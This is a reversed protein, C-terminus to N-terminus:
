FPVPMPAQKVQQRLVTSSAAKGRLPPAMATMDSLAPCTIFQVAPHEGTRSIIVKPVHYPNSIQVSLLSSM